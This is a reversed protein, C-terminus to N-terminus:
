RDNQNISSPSIWSNCHFHVSGQGPISTTLSKLFFERAHTNKILFAGPFGLTSNWKLKISTQGPTRIYIHCNAMQKVHDRKQSCMKREAVEPKSQNCKCFFLHFKSM